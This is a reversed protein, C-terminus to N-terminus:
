LRSAERKSLTTTAVGDKVSVTSAPITVFKEGVILRLSGDAMVRDIRGLRKGAGDLLVSGAKPATALDASEAAVPAAAFLSAVIMLTKM